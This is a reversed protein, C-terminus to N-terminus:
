YHYAKHNNRPAKRYIRGAGNPNALIWGTAALAIKLEIESRSYEGFLQIRPLRWLPFASDAWMPDTTMVTQVGCKLAHIALRDTYNGNPFAFTTCKTGLEFSVDAVSQEIDSLAVNESERTLISHYLSHAGITFGRIALSRAQDWTMPCIDHDEMDVSVHYKSCARDLRENILVLPLQILSERKLNSPAPSISREIAMRRDIWLPDGDTLFRTVVYIVAPVGLRELEPAAETAVSRKGDDFTLLCFPRAKPFSLRDLLEDHHIFDFWRNLVDIHYRTQSATLVHENIIVGGRKAQGSKSAIAMSGSGVFMPIRM